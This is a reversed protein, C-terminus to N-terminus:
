DNSLLFEITGQLVWSAQPEGPHVRGTLIIGKKDGHRNAMKQLIGELPPPEDTELHEHEQPLPPAPSQKKRPRSKGKTEKASRDAKARM